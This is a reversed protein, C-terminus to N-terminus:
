QGVVAVPSAHKSNSSSHSRSGEAVAGLSAAQPAAAGGACAAPLAAAMSRFIGGRPFSEVVAADADGDSGLALQLGRDQSGISLQSMEYLEGSGQVEEEIDSPGSGARFGSPMLEAMMSPTLEHGQDMSDHHAPCGHCGAASQCLPAAAAAMAQAQQQKLADLHNAMDELQQM